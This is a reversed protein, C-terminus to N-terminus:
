VRGALRFLASGHQGPRRWPPVLWRVMPLVPTGALLAPDLTPVVEEPATVFRVPVGLEAGVDRALRLGDHITAATTEDMLHSNGVLGTVRLRAAGEIERLIRVVGAVTDTFPRLHNVVHLLEYGGEPFAGALSSLVTAGVDDGGVDLVALGDPRQLLGKVEPTLIPLDAHRFAPPPLVVSVGRAELAEKAERSRFYPNVLDLDALRVRLGRRAMALSFNVSVESKGSGYNGVFLVIPKTELAELSV